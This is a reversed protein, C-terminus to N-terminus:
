DEKVEGVVKCYGQYEKVYAVADEFTEAYVYPGRWELLENTEPHVAIILTAFKKPESGQGDTIDIQLNEMNRHYNQAFRPALAAFEDIPLWIHPESNPIVDTVM